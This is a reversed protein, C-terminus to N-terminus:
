GGSTFGRRNRRYNKARTGHITGAIFLAALLLMAILLGRVWGIWPAVPVTELAIAPASVLPKGNRVLTLTGVQQGREIPARLAKAGGSFVLRDDVPVGFEFRPSPAALMTKAGLLVDPQAGLRVRVRTAAKQESAFIKWDYRRFGHYLLATSEKFIDPSNLVVAILQWQDMTASSVLCKGAQRVFGTKVGDIRSGPIGPVPKNLMKNRSELMIRGRPAITIPVPPRGSAVIERIHPYDTLAVRTMMALDHASSYHGPAYLGHPNKFQTNHLGLVQAKENMWGVFTQEDGALFEAAAVTAENSSRILAAKLLDDLTLTDGKALLSSGGTSFAHQSVTASEHLRDAGHDMIVMATMIKTTSAMPMRVDPNKAWLIMGTQRDMLMAGRAEVLAAAQAKPVPSQAWTTVALVCCCLLISVAQRIMVDYQVKKGAM